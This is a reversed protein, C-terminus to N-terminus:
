KMNRGYMMELKAYEICDRNGGEIAQICIDVGVPCGNMHAYLLCDFHGHTAASCCTDEKWEVGHEHLFQLIEIHGNEAAVKCVDSTLPGHRDYIYQLIDMHNEGAASIAAQETLEVSHDCLYRVINLHGFYSAVEILSSKYFASIHQLHEKRLEIVQDLNGTIIADQYDDLIKRHTSIDIIKFENPDVTSTKSSDEKFENPDVTSTKSSDVKFPNSYFALRRSDIRFPNTNADLPDDHRDDTTCTVVDKQLTDRKKKDKIMERRQKKEFKKLSTFTNFYESIPIDESDSELDSDLMRSDFKVPDNSELTNGNCIDYPDFFQKVDGALTAFKDSQETKNINQTQHLDVERTIYEIVCQKNNEIAYDLLFEWEIHYNNWRLFDLFEVCDNDVIHFVDIKHPKINFVYSFCELSKGKIIDTYINDLIEFGNMHLYKLCESHGGRAAFSCAERMCYGDRYLMFPLITQLYKIDGNRSAKCVSFSDNGYLVKCFELNNM